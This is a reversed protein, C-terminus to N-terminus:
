MLLLDRLPKSTQIKWGLPAMIKLGGFKHNLHIIMIKLTATQYQGTGSHGYWGLAQISQNTGLQDMISLNWIYGNGFKCILQWKSRVTIIIVIKWWNHTENISTDVLLVLITPHGFLEMWLYSRQYVGSHKCSCSGWLLLIQIQGFRETILSKFCFLFFTDEFSILMISGNGNMAFIFVTNEFSTQETWNTGFNSFGMYEDYRDCFENLIATQYQGSNSMAIKGFSTTNQTGSVLEDRLKVVEM